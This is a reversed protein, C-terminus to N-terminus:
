VAEDQADQLGVYIGLGPVLDVLNVLTVVDKHSLYFDGVTQFRTGYRAQFDDRLRQNRDLMRFVNSTGRLFMLPIQTNLLYLFKAKHTQERVLKFYDQFFTKKRVAESGGQWYIFKFEAIRRNTVLDFDSSANGAGLSVTEVIEGEELLYPLSYLIGVTHIVVDIQACARKVQAASAILSKDIRAGSNVALVDSAKTGVLRTEMDAVTKALSVGRFSEIQLLADVIAM